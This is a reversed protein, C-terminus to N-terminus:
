GHGLVYVTQNNGNWDKYNLAYSYFNANAVTLYTFKGYKATYDNNDAMSKFNYGGGAGGTWYSGNSYASQAGQRLVSAGISSGGVRLTGTLEMNNASVNGAATVKFAGKGLAVGDTGIYIGNHVTDNLGTMGNYIATAKISFGESGNGIYGERATIKGDIEAGNANFQVIRRGNAYWTHSTDDMSWSFSTQGEPSEKSVKAEILGAQILLTAKVNGIQRNFRRETPSEFKYEHNIEDDHPAAIDARMLRGFTRERQYIGGYTNKISVGDGIEAAPNLLAGTAYYPQYQYGRLKALMQEALEQTGFPNNVELTRGLDNGAEVVTDDDIHIVVKSYTNFAPAIDLTGARRLLNIRETTPM